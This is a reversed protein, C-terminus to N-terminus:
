CYSLNVLLNVIGTIEEREIYLTNVTDWPPIGRNFTFYPLSLCNHVSCSNFVLFVHVCMIATRKRVLLIFPCEWRETELESWLRCFLVATSLFCTFYILTNVVHVNYIVINIFSFLIQAQYLQVFTAVCMYQVHM